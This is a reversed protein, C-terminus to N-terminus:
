NTKLVEQQNMFIQEDLEGHLFATKVDLQELEWNFHAVLALIVRITTYKVVPSFIENYDVGEKQTYGKAVLRAKFSLPESASTGEKVKFVWKCDVISKDKPKPVLEWIQNKELSSMEDKMAKFWEESQESKMAEEFTKTERDALEEYSAHAFALESEYGFRVPARTQRRERDRALNYDALPNEEEPYEEVVVEDGNEIDPQEVKLCPM